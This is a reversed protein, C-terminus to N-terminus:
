MKQKRSKWEKEDEKENEKKDKATLYDAYIKDIMEDPFQADEFSFQTVVKVLEREIEYVVVVQMKAIYRLGNFEISPIFRSSDVTGVHAHRYFHDSYDSLLKYM